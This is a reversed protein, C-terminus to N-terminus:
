QVSPALSIESRAIWRPGSDTEIQVRSANVTSARAAIPLMTSATPRREGDNGSESRYLVVTPGTFGTISESSAVSQAAPSVAAPAAAPANLAASQDNLPPLAPLASNACGSGACSAILICLVAIRAHPSPGNAHLQEHRLMSAAECMQKLAPVERRDAFEIERRMVYQPEFARGSHLAFSVATDPVAALARRVSYGGKCRRSAM